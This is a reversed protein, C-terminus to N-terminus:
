GMLLVGNRWLAIKQDTIKLMRRIRAAIMTGVIPLTWFLARRVASAELRRWIAWADRM